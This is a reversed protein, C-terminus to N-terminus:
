SHSHLTSPPGGPSSPWTTSHNSSLARQIFDLKVRYAFLASPEGIHTMM